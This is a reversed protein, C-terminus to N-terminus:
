TGITKGQYLCGGIYTYWVLSFFMWFCIFVSGDAMWEFFFLSKGKFFLLFCWEVVPASLCSISRPPSLSNTTSSCPRSLRSKIELLESIRQLFSSRNPLVNPPEDGAFQKQCTKWLIKKPPRSTPKPLIGGWPRNFTTFSLFM